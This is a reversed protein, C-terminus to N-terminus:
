RGIGHVKNVHFEVLEETALDTYFATLASISVALLLTFASIQQRSLELSAGRVVLVVIVMTIVMWREFSFEGLEPFLREWPRVIFLALYLAALWVTTSRPWIGRRLKESGDLSFRTGIATAPSVATM